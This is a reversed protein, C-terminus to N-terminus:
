NRAAPMRMQLMRARHQLLAVSAEKKPEAAAILDNMTALATQMAGCAERMKELNAASIMRGAKLEGDLVAASEALTLADACAEVFKFDPAEKEFEAYHKALHEYVGKRDEAPMKMGGRAGMLAGMAASCGKWVAKGDGSKGAQHHPLKLDGFSEAPSNETWAFHAMIRKIEADDLDDWAADTFDGLAPKSWEADEAAKGCDRYPLASKLNMTARNMSWNVPSVDLLALERIHRITVGNAPDNPNGITEFDAKIARFGISNKKIAKKAIGTLVENGRPTDLYETTGFLAGEAEPYLALLEAPLETRGIEKLLLPVGIPPEYGNHQWLVQVDSAREALTKIFAGAHIIDDGEDLNGCVAFIQKVIRGEPEGLAFSDFAKFETAKGNQPKRKM